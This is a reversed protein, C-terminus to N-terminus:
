DDRATTGSREIRGEVRYDIPEGREARARVFTEMADRVLLNTERKTTSAGLVALDDGGAAMFNNVAVSYRTADDIPRGQADLVETLRQMRPRDADFRYRMGSVQLTRGGALAEELLHKVQAGTLEVTVITNDFPMVEYISGKTVPGEPLDARLGGSNQFAVDAKVAERIADAVFNGVTSEVARGRTLRRANRGVAEAALQSVGADWRAVMATVASDPTVEDAWTNVLRATQEVVRGRVPDMVIDCVGVAEGRSGAILLTRGDVSDLVENHSHGGFWADV